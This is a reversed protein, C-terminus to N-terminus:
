RRNRAAREARQKELLELQKAQHQEWAAIATDRAKKEALAANLQASTLLLGLLMAAALPLKHSITM